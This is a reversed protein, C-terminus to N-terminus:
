VHSHQYTVFWDFIDPPHRSREFRLISLFFYYTIYGYPGNDNNSFFVM